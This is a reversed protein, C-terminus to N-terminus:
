FCVHAVCFTMDARGEFASMHPAVLYTRKTRTAVAIDGNGVFSFM